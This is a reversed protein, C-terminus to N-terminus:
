SSNRKPTSQSAEAVELVKRFVRMFNGGWIKRIQEKTYGRRVLELTINGVESEDYCGDLGAGGDFDTGIGVHDIGAVRVIHDIHDVVDSVTALRRPYKKDLARREKQANREEKESLEGLNMYKQKFAKIAAEREPNPTTKKVYSSLVCVQIVGGNEALKKLMEDNLNRPHNCLARACSHSAIVPVKTVEMVDDFAEDSIHSVDILMGLRNMEAVVKKGFASLGHYEPKDTSSDCIDNNRSHCLTIYRAGLDYYRQILSIDNGIAYGNEIGIYIARKGAKEIRYADDPIRALEVKASHTKITHHIKDFRRIAQEKARQNAEPTRSGQRIFVAFFVADLGGEEMRPLDVKSGTTRPDHREGLNFNPRLLNMPTDVHTDVTLIEDHIKAAREEVSENLAHVGPNTLLLLLFILVYKGYM